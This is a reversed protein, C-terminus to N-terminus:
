RNLAVKRGDSLRSGQYSDGKAKLWAVLEGSPSYLQLGTGVSKWHGITSLGADCDSGPTVAGATGVSDDATLTLTCPADNAGVSLKWTGTLADDAHALAVTSLALAAGIALASIKTM